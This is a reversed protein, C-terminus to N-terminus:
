HPLTGDAICTAGVARAHLDPCHERLRHLMEADGVPLSAQLYTGHQAAAEAVVADVLRSRTGTPLHGHEVEMAAALIETNPTPNLAAHAVVRGENEITIDQHEADNM